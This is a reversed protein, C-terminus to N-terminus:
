VHARGIEIDRSHEIADLVAEETIEHFVIRRVPMKPKLLELLHWSISEGERDPDTALLVESAGKLATKMDRITGKRNPSIVYYPQFDNEVDVAMSGWEKDKIAEPVESANNPLDRVHGVSAMVRYRNGLFGSLTRAKTPSEVILLPIPM